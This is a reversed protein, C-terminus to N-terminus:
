YPALSRYLDTTYVAFETMVKNHTLAVVGGPAHSTSGDNVPINGKDVVLIDRWGFKALHYAASAGVMGAGVVVVRYKKSM